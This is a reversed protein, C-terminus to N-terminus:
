VTANTSQHALAGHVVKIQFAESNQFSDVIQNV